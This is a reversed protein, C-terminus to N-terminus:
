TKYCTKNYFTDHRVGTSKPSPQRQFRRPSHQCSPRPSFLQKATCLLDIGVAAASADPPTPDRGTVARKDPAGVRRRMLRVDDGIGVFNLKLPCPKTRAGIISFSRKVSSDILISDMM